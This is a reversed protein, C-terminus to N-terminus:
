RIKLRPDDGLSVSPTTSKGSWTPTPQMATSPSDKVGILRRLRSMRDSHRFRTCGGVEINSVKAFRWDHIHPLMLYWGVLGRARSSYQSCVSESKGLSQRACWVIFCFKLCPVGKSIPNRLKVSTINNGTNEITTRAFQVKEPRYAPGGFILFDASAVIIVAAMVVALILMIGVIRERWKYM